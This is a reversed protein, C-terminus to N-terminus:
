GRAVLDDLDVDLNRAIRGLTEVSGTRKGNEIQSLYVPNLGAREALARQTLGRHRRFVRVPSEGALLRDVVEAPFFEGGGAKARDYLEEDTLYADAELPAMRAFDEWPVVAFAPKGDKGRIIQPKTM